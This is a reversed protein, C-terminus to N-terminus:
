ILLDQVLTDADEGITGARGGGEEGQLDNGRGLLESIGELDLSAQLLAGLDGRGAKGLEQLQTLLSGQELVVVGNTIDRGEGLTSEVEETDVLLETAGVSASLFNRKRKQQTRNVGKYIVRREKM